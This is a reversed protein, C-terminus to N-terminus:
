SEAESSPSSKTLRGYRSNEKARVQHGKEIFSEEKDGAGFKDNFDCMHYEM